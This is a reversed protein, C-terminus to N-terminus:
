SSGRGNTIANMASGFLFGLIALWLMNMLSALAILEDAVLMVRRRNWRDILAGILPGLLVSPLLSLLTAAALITASGTKETIWWVLGFQAVASGIWSLNQGTWITFFLPAWRDPNWSITRKPM